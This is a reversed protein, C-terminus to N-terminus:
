IRYNESDAVLINGEGDMSHLTATCEEGVIAVNKVDVEFKSPDPLSFEKIEGYNRFATVMDVSTLFEMNTAQFPTTLKKVRNATGAKMMM